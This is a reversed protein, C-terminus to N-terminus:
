AVAHRQSIPTPLHCIPTRDGALISSTTRDGGALVVFGDGSRKSAALFGMKLPTQAAPLIELPTAPAPKLKEPFNPLVPVSIEPAPQFEAQGIVKPKPSQAKSEQGHFALLTEQVARAVFKRIEFERHFKVERKAPHINVDV